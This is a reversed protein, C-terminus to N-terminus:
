RRARYRLSFPWHSAKQRRSKEWLQDGTGGVLIVGVPPLQHSPGGRAIRAALSTTTPPSSVISNRGGYPYPLVAALRSAPRRGPALRPRRDAFRPDLVRPSMMVSGCAAADGPSRRCISLELAPIAPM